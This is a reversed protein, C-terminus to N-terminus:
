KRRQEKYEEIAEQRAKWKEYDPHDVDLKTFGRTMLYGGYGCAALAAGITVISLLSGLPFILLGGILVFSGAVMLLFGRNNKQEYKMLFIENYPIIEASFRGMM